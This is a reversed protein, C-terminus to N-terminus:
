PLRTLFDFILNFINNEIHGIVCHFGPIYDVCKGM